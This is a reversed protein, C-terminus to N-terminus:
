GQSAKLAEDKIKDTMATVQKARTNQIAPVLAAKGPVTARTLATQGKRSGRSVIMRHGEEYLHAHHAGWPQHVRAGVIGVWTFEGYQVGKFGIASRLSRKDPDDGKYGPATIRLRYEQIVPKGAARLGKKIIPGRLRHQVNELIADLQDPDTGEFETSAM